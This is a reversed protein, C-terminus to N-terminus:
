ESLHLIGQQLIPDNQLDVTLSENHYLRLYNRLARRLERRLVSASLDTNLTNRVRRHLREFKPYRDSEFHDYEALSTLRDPQNQMQKQIYTPLIDSSRLELLTAFQSETYENLSVPLDPQIGTRHISRGSPLSYKMVTLYLFRSPLYSEFFGLSETQGLGRSSTLPIAVQGIGKGFSREGAVTARNHDQLAGTTLESASASSANILVCLREDAFPTSSTAHRTGSLPEFGLLSRVIRVLTGDLEYNSDTTTIVQGEQLFLDAVDVAVPLAGGPNNRLDLIISEMGQKRLDNLASRLESGAMLGFRTLRVYGINSPLLKSEVTEIGEQLQELQVHHAREWGRRRFSVRVSKGPDARLLESREQETTESLSTGDIRLIVDGPRLGSRDAPSRFAVYNIRFQGDEKSLHFGLFRHVGRGLLRDRLERLDELTLVQSFSDGTEDIMGRAFTDALAPVHISKRPFAEETKRIRRILGDISTREWKNLRELLDESVPTPLRLRSGDRRKLVRVLERKGEELLDQSSFQGPFAYSNLLHDHVESLYRKIKQHPTSQAGAFPAAVSLLFAISMALVCPHAVSRLPYPRSHLAM